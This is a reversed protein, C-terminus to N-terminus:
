HKRARRARNTKRRPIDELGVVHLPDLLVTYGEQDAVVITRATLFVFDPQPVPYKNGSSTVLAFPRFRESLRSRIHEVNMPPTDSRRRAPDLNWGVASNGSWSGPTARASRRAPFNHM